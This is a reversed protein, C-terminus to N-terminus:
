RTLLSFPNLPMALSPVCRVGRHPGALADGSFRLSALSALLGAPLFTPAAFFPASRNRRTLAICLPHKADAAANLLEGVGFSGEQRSV